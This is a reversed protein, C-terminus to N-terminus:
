RVILDFEQPQRVCAFYYSEGREWFGTWQPLDQERTRLREVREEEDVDVVVALDVLDTLEPRGSYVGEVVVLEAAALEARRGMRGDRARWDYPLYSAGRGQALPELAQERLRRWDLVAAAVDADTLRERALFDLQALQPAYFDDGALVTAPRQLAVASALTSKGSGSRGDLAVVVPRGDGGLGDVAALVARVAASDRGLWVQLQQPTDVDWTAATDLRRRLAPPALTAVLRRASQGRGAGDGAARVLAEAATRLLALQLPQDLGNTDTGVVAAAGSDTLARLLTGSAVGAAPADGPLVLITEAGAALAARLGAVMAATPGAGPPEERVFRAPRELPREDGVVYLLTDLPLAEIARDLLTRGSIRAQLKDSGFRRSTGGALVVAARSGPGTM